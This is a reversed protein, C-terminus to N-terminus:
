SSKTWELQNQPLLQRRWLGTDHSKALHRRYTSGHLWCHETWNYRRKVGRYSKSIIGKPERSDQAFGSSMCLMDEAILCSM